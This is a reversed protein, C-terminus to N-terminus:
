KGKASLSHSSYLSSWRTARRAAEGLSILIDEIKLPKEFFDYAGGQMCQIVHPLTGHSTMVYIQMLSNMEKIQLLLEVGNMEGMMIDTIVVHFFSRQLTNLAEEASNATSVHYGEKELSQRLVMRINEDDDVVLISLKSNATTKM